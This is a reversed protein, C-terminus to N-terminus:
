ATAGPTVPKLSDAAASPGSNLDHACNPCFRDGQRIEHKCEPCTPNLNFKCKPCFNFRASVTGGCQPCDFLKPERALFYIIFGIGNPIVIVLITWLTASMGRRKADRNVYGLMLAVAIVLLGFVTMFVFALALPMPHADHRRAIPILVQIGVFLLIALGYAWGPIIRLEESFRLKENAMRWRTIRVKEMLPTMDSM